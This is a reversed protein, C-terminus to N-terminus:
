WSGQPGHLAAAPNKDTLWPGIRKMTKWDYEYAAGCDACIQYYRGSEETRPWSFRHSCGSGLLFKIFNM